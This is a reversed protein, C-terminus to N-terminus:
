LQDMYNKAIGRFGTSISEDLAVANWFETAALKAMNFEADHGPMPKYLSAQDLEPVEGGRLPAYRMPLM